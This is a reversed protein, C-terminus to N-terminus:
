CSLNPPIQGKLVSILGEGLIDELNLGIVCGQANYKEKTYTLGLRVALTGILELDGDPYNKEFDFAWTGDRKKRGLLEDIKEATIEILKLGQRECIIRARDLGKDIDPIGKIMVPIINEKPFGNNVFAEPLTNSDGGGSIGFVLPKSFDLKVESIFEKVKSDVYQRCEEKTFTKYIQKTSNGLTDFIYEATNQKDPISEIIIEKSIIARLDINRDTRIMLSINKSLIDRLREELGILNIFNGEEQEVYLSVSNYPIKNIYLFEKISFDDNNSYPLQYIGHPTNLLIM